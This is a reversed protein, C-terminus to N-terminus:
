KSLSGFESASRTIGFKGNVPGYIIYTGDGRGIANYEAAGQSVESQAGETFKSHAKRYVTASINKLLCGGTKISKEHGAGLEFDDTRCAIASEGAYKIIVRVSSPTANQVIVTYAQMMSSLCLSGVVVGFQFIKNFKM